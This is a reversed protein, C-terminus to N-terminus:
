QVSRTGVSTAGSREIAVVDGGLYSAIVAPNNRIEQPTGDAIVRGLEMAYVRDCLGMLLPMDHEVILITCDLEKQIRRVLPGFAEAERQAVGATPEDLLLLKPRSAVQAALDCIRRTGTSLDSVLTDAWAGLGFQEVIALANQRLEYERARVWPASVMASVMGTKYRRALAVQITQTVTLGPWVRAEQFSRALGYHARLDAPFDGVEHGCIRVSGGTSRVLGSIVNMLTTKGAGNPGILGVIEGPALRLSVGDLARVGGFSISIDDVALPVESEDDRIAGKRRSVAELHTRWAGVRPDDGPREAQTPVHGNTHVPPSMPSPNREVMFEAPALRAARRDIYDQWRGQVIGAIGTPFSLLVVIEVIGALFLQFGLNHGFNGFVPAVRPGVFFTVMYLLVGAAVGGALSGLGGIVPVAIVAISVEAGFQSPSAIRWADAWLVGTSAAVFGSLALLAIKVTAPTIGFAMSVNENDRVAVTIRGPTSRRFASGTVLVVALVGVAVYYIGIQSTPTGLGSAIAPQRAVLVGLPNGSSLWSQQLLWDPTIVALGLTTVALTVGPVRLAPLGIAAMLAAGICGTVLLLAPLTWGHPAWRAVLYASIGVLAFNGLSVQGGWGMLMTLGVGIITYIVILVLLFQNGTSDFYPIHPLLAAIAVAGLALWLTPHRILASHELVKPIRTVPREEVVNDIGSFTRRIAKGRVLVVALIMVFLAVEADSANQTIASVIQGVEGLLLGGILAAPLSVFAGFAAAGLTLMLLYPGLSAINFSPQTPAQLVASVAALTGAIAWAIASVRGVSIGSLRAADPNSAAARIQKGLSSYRLFTALVVVALPALVLTLVSMGSLVVGGVHLHSEFPEPYPLASDSSKPGFAPVYTLALLVQSVGLSLLLLRIPSRTRRRLRRVLFREVVLGTLLGIVVALAFAVWWNWGLDLVWKALLLASLTGLQAHALNLFRNSKYVLVFGVALLGITLGNLLGLVLTGATM